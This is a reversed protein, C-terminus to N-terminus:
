HRLRPYVPLDRGLYLYLGNLNLNAGIRTSCLKADPFSARVQFDVAYGQKFREKMQAIVDDSHRGFNEFDTIRDRSFFPRTM